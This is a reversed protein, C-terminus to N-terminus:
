RLVTNQHLDYQIQETYASSGRLLLVTTTNMPSWPQDKPSPVRRYFLVLLHVTGSCSSSAHQLSPACVQPRSDREKSHHVGHLIYSSPRGQNSIGKNQAFAVLPAIHRDSLVLSFLHVTESWSRGYRQLLLCWAIHIPTILRSRIMVPAPLSHHLIVIQSVPTRTGRMM